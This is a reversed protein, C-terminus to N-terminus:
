LWTSLAPDEREEASLAEGLAGMWLPDLPAGPRLDLDLLRAAHGAGGAGWAPDTRLAECRGRRVRCAAPELLGYADARTLASLVILERALSQAPGAALRELAEELRPELSRELVYADLRTEVWLALALREGPAEALPEDASLTPAAGAGQQRAAALVRARAALSAGVGTRAPQDVAAPVQSRLLHHRASQLANQVELGDRLDPDIPVEQPELDDLPLEEEAQVEHAPEVMDEFASGPPLEFKIRYAEPEHVFTYWALLPLAFLHALLSAAAFRLVASSRLRAALFGTLLRADGRLGLDARTTRALIRESLAQARLGDAGVPAPDLAARFQALLRREAEVAAACTACDLAPDSAQAGRLALELAREGNLHQHSM